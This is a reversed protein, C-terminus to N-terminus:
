FIRLHDSGIGTDGAFHRQTVTQWVRQGQPVQEQLAGTNIRLSDRHSQVVRHRMLAQASVDKDAVQVSLSLSPNNVIVPESRSPSKAIFWKIPGQGDQVSWLHRCGIKM